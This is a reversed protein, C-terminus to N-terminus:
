FQPRPQLRQCLPPVNQSEQRPPGPVLLPQSVRTPHPHCSAATLDAGSPSSTQAFQRLSTTSSAASHRLPTPLPRLTHLSLHTIAPPSHRRQPVFPTAQCPPYSTKVDNDDDVRRFIADAVEVRVTHDYYPRRSSALICLHRHRRPLQRDRLPQYRSSAPPRLRHQTGSSATPPAPRRFSGHNSSSSPCLLLRPRATATTKLLWLGRTTPHNESQRPRQLLCRLLTQPGTAAM